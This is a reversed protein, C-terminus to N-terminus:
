PVAAMQLATLLGALERRVGKAPRAGAFIQRPHRSAYSFTISDRRRDGSPPKVRHLLRAGDLFIATGAPGTCDIRVGTEIDQESHIGPRGSATKLASWSEDPLYQLPGDAPGVDSLYIVVKLVRLDELDWHWNRTGGARGDPFEVKVEFGLYLPALGIYREALDLLMPHLGALYIPHVQQFESAKHRATSVGPTEALRGFLAAADPPMLGLRAFDGPSAMAIGQAALPGLIPLLCEPAPPLRDRYRDSARRRREVSWEYLGPVELVRRTTGGVIRDIFERPRGTLM